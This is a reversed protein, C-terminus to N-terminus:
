IGRLSWRPGPAPSTPMRIAGWATARHLPHARWSPRGAGLLLILGLCALALSGPEPLVTTGTVVNDFGYNGQGNGNGLDRFSVSILGRDDQVGFFGGFSSIRAQFISLGDEGQVTIELQDSSVFGALNLGFLTTGARFNSFATGAGAQDLLGRTPFLLINGVYPNPSNFTSNALQLTSPEYGAQFDEFDEVVATTPDLASTFTAASLQIPAASANFGTWLGVAFCLLIKM